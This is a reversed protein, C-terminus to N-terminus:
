STGGRYSYILWLVIYSHIMDKGGAVLTSSSTTQIDNDLSM